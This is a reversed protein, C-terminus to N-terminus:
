SVLRLSCQRNATLQSWNVAYSSTLNCPKMFSPGPPKPKTKVSSHVYMAINRQACLQYFTYHFFSRHIEAFGPHLNVNTESRCAIIYKEYDNRFNLQFTDCYLAYVICSKMCHMIESCKVFGRSGKIAYNFSLLHCRNRPMCRISNIYFLCKWM